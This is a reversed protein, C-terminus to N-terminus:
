VSTTCRSVLKEDKSSDRGNLFSIKTVIPETKCQFLSGAQAEPVESKIVTRTTRPRACFPDEYKPMQDAIVLAQSPRHAFDIVHQCSSAVQVRRTQKDM